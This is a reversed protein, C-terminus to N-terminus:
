AEGALEEVEWPRAPAGDTLFARLVTALQQPYIQVESPSLEDLSWWRHAAVADTELDSFRGAGVEASSVRALIHWEDQEFQRSAFEFRVGTLHVLRVGLDATLIGAEERLERRLAAEPSEHGRIGGGPLYWYGHGRPDRSPDLFFLLVRDAPDLLIARAVHRRVVRNTSMFFRDPV